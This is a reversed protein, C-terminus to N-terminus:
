YLTPYMQPNVQSNYWVWFEVFEREDIHGSRNTDAMYFLQGGERPGFSIGLQQMARKFERKSLQGSWNTDVSRFIQSGQQMLPAIQPSVGGPLMYPSQRSYPASYNYQHRNWQPLHPLIASLAHGVFGGGMGGQHGYGPMGGMGGMGGMGMGGMGMGGGMGQHTLGGIVQGVIGPVGGMGGQPAYGPMGGMGYGGQAGYGAGPMGPMGGMGYGGQPAGYGGQM